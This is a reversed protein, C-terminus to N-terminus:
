KQCKNSMQDSMWPCGVLGVVSPEDKFVTSDTLYQIIIENNRM